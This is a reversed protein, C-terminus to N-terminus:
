KPDERGHGPISTGLSKICRVLFLCVYDDTERVYHVHSTFSVCKFM